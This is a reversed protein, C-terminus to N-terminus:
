FKFRPPQLLRQQLRAARAQSPTIAALADPPPPAPLAGLPHLGAWRRVRNTAELREADPLDGIASGHNGGAVTYWAADHTGPGPEFPEASWPDNEGYIFLLAHGETKVWNDIDPMASADFEISAADGESDEDAPPPEEPENFLLLDDISALLESTDPSGLQTAAQYNYPYFAVVEADNAGLLSATRSIFSALEGVAADPAPISACDEALSYQWFSWYIGSVVSEYAVDPGGVYDFTYGAEAAVVAFVPVIEDRRELGARTAAILSERCSETGVNALFEDYADDDDDVDNPAVYVVSGDVDDDFFRRHYVTAMGGKSGGTSLWKGAYVGRLAQIIEHHDAAAQYINLDAFDAADPISTDFFREEIGVQNGDVLETPEDPYAYLPLMYGTTYAVTPAATSRHLLTVRQEFTGRSPDLHDVLQTYSMIFYRYGPVLAAQEELVTLGPVRELETVVDTAEVADVADVGHASGAGDHALAASSFSLVALCLGIRM